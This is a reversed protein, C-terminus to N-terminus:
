TELLNIESERGLPRSDVIVWVFNPNDKHVVYLQESCYRHSYINYCHRHSYINYCHRHSYINYCHM